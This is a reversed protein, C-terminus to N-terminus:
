RCATHGEQNSLSVTTDLGNFSNVVSSVTFGGGVYVLMDGNPHMARLQIESTAELGTGLQVPGRVITLTGSRENLEVSYTTTEDIVSDKENLLPGCVYTQGAFVSSSAM